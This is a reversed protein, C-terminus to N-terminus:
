LEAPVAEATAKVADQVFTDIEDTKTNIRSILATKEDENKYLGQGLAKTYLRISSLPAKVDNSLTHVLLSYKKAQELDRAKAAESDEQAEKPEDSSPEDAQDEGEEADDQKAPEKDEEDTSDQTASDKSEDSTADQQTSEESSDDQQKDEALTADQQASDKSVGLPVVTLEDAQSKAQEETLEKSLKNIARASRDLRRKTSFIFIFVLLATAALLINAFVWAITLSSDVSPTYSFKIYGDLTGSGGYTRIQYVGNDTYFLSTEQDTADAPLFSVSKIFEYGSLDLDDSFGEENITTSLRNIEDLYSDGPQSYLAYFFLNTVAFALVFIAITSAIVSNFNKM